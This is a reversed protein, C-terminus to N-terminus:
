VNEILNKIHKIKFQYDEIRDIVAHTPRVSQRELRITEQCFDTGYVEHWKEAFRQRYEETQVRLTQIDLYKIKM